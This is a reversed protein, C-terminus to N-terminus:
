IAWKRDKTFAVNLWKKLSIEGIGTMIEERIADQDALSPEWGAPATVFDIEVFLKPGSKAVRTFSEIFGYKKEVGEVVAEIKLTYKDEATMDLLEKVQNRMQVAPVKLVYASILIVMVPDVYPMWSELGVQSFIYAGLFGAFVALSLFFDMIWQDTEAQVLGSQLARQAKRFRFYVVLCYSSAIFAYLMGSGPDVAQGGSLLTAVGSFLAFLCLITIVSFKGFIVLPELMEKGFPFRDFDNKRIFQASWLSLGSLGASILSYVGDFLIVTSNGAIGWIVALAASVIAAYLSQSLLKKEIL